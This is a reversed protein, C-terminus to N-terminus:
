PRTEEMMRSLWGVHHLAEAPVPELTSRMLSNWRNFWGFLAVISVIEILEDDSFHPRAAEFAPGADAVPLTAGASAIGLAARERANFHGSRRHDPLADLQVWGVGAHQAAHVVHVASYTCRAGRCAEAALLFRLGPEILGDGRLTTQVLGLVAPLVGPKRAMTLLANPRYGVFNVLDELQPNQSRPDDAALPAMRATDSLNM